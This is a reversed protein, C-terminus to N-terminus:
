KSGLASGATVRLNSSGTDKLQPFEDDNLRNEVLQELLEKVRPEFRSLEFRREDGAIRKFKKKQEKTSRHECSQRDAHQQRDSAEMIKARLMEQLAQQDRDSLKANESLKQSVNGPVNAVCSLYLMLLRLKTESPFDDELRAFLSSLDTQIANPKVERAEKNIGCAIDQEVSGVGVTLQNETLKKNLHNSMEMHMRIRVELEKHEHTRRLLDKLDSTKVDAM